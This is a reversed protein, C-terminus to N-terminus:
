EAPAFQATHLRRYLGGTALLQAHTGQEVVRGHDLVVIRDAGRITALRHAIVLTTRGRSLDALADQIARETETDLASTAEDLILIAPDRLFLRAIALRQKQGGSLKVGREGVVTNAGQPLAAITATLHAQDAARAVQADTAGPRGYRINDWVDAGFIVPDQSVLGIRARVADSLVRSGAVDFRLEVASAVKNVNQGGPGASRVFREVLEDEPIQLDDAIALM